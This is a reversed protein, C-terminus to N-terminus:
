ELAFGPKVGARFRSALEIAWWENAHRTRGAIHPTHIVNERGILPDDTKLPEYDFVDAALALEDALVRRRLTPMDVIQARTVLVVLCGKPLAEIMDATVIGETVKIWPLMPVFIEADAMLEALHWARRVGARHFSPDPQHPDWAAVDAGLFACAAAYRSGINGMGVVRVRKGSITGATFDPTDSYQHYPFKWATYGDLVSAHRQPIRRLASLTLGLGFESVSPGWYGETKLPILRVGHAEAEEATVGPEAWSDHGLETLATAGALAEPTTKGWLLAARDAGHFDELLEQTVVVVPGDASWIRKLVAPTHPWHDTFHPHISILSKKM